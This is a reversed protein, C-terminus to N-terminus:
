LLVNTKPFTIVEDNNNIKNNPVNYFLQHHYFELVDNCHSELDDLTLNTFLAKPQCYSRYSKRHSPQVWDVFKVKFEETVFKQYKNSYISFLTVSNSGCNPMSHNIHEIELLLQFIKSGM